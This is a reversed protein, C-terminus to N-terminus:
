LDYTSVFHWPTTTTCSSNFKGCNKGELVIRWWLCKTGFNPITLTYKTANFFDLSVFDTIPSSIDGYCHMSPYDDQPLNTNPNTVGDAFVEIKGEMSDCDLMLFFNNWHIDVSYLTSSPVSYEAISSSNTCPSALGILNGGNKELNLEPTFSKSEKQFTVDENSCSFVLILSLLCLLNRMIKPKVKLLLICSFM